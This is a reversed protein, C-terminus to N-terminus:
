VWHVTKRHDLRLREDLYPRGCSKRRREEADIFYLEPTAGHGIVLLSLVREMSWWFSFPKKRRSRPSSFLRNQESVAAAVIWPLIAILLRSPHGKVATRTARPSSGVGSVAGVAATHTPYGAGLM